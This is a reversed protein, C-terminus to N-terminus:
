VKKMKNKELKFLCRELLWVIKYAWPHRQLRNFQEIPFAYHEYDALITNPFLQELVRKREEKDLDKHTESIGTMDFLTVDIDAYKPKENSLIIVQLFWKWDSVIKLNEDYYGYKKFLDRHVYTPDHNLTGKFFGLMTIENGEFSKDIEKKGNPFCKIMNGYLISPYGLQELALVMRQTVDTTALSDGSNLIQVYDGSAMRLGKNMANYIGEDPESMWKLHTFQSEYKKIVDVSGDTSAGDIVIYEFEGFTQHAVSYMTKELGDANNRNITVISLRM